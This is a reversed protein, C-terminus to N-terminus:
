LGENKLFRMLSWLHPWTRLSAWASLVSIVIPSQATQHPDFVSIGTDWVWNKEQAMRTLQDQDQPTEIGLIKHGGLRADLRHGVQISRQHLAAWQSITGLHVHYGQQATEAAARVAREFAFGDTVYSEVPCLLVMTGVPCHDQLLGHLRSPDDNVCVTVDEFAIAALQEQVAAEFRSSVIVLPDDGGLESLRELSDQFLSDEAILPAFYAPRGEILVGGRKDTGQSVAEDQDIIIVPQMM